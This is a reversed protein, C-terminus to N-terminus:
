SIQVMRVVNYNVPSGIGFQTWVPTYTDSLAVRIFTSVDEGEVCSNVSVYSAATACRFRETVSVQEDTLGASAKMIDRVTQRGAADTPPKAQVIAQAEAAASQLENQRAVMGGADFTGLAMLVLVPAVLATEITVTGRTEARFRRFLAPCSM